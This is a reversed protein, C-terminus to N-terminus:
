KDSSPSDQRLKNIWFIVATHSHLCNSVLKNHKLLNVNLCFSFLLKDKEFLSRCINVYLSYTFHDKLIQLRFVCFFRPLFQNISFGKSLM